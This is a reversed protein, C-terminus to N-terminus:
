DQRCHDSAQDGQEAGTPRLRDVLSELTHLVLSRVQALMERADDYFAESFQPWEFNFSMARWM